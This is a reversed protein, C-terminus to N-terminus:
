KNKKQINEMIGNAIFRIGSAGSISKTTRLNLAMLKEFHMFHAREYCFVICTQRTPWVYEPSQSFSTISHIKRQKRYQQGM